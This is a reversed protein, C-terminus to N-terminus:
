FDDDDEEEMKNMDDELIREEIALYNWANTLMTKQVEISPKVGDIWQVEAIHNFFEEFSAFMALEVKYKIFCRPEALHIIYEFDPHTIKNEALYFHMYAEPTKTHKKNM